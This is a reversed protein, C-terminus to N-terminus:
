LFTPPGFKMRSAVLPRCSAVPHQATLTGVVKIGPDRNRPEQKTLSPPRAGRYTNLELRLVVTQVSLSKLVVEAQELKLAFRSLEAVAVSPCRSWSGVNGLFREVM